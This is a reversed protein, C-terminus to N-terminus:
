LDCGQPGCAIEKQPSYINEEEVIDKVNILEAHKLKAEYEEKTVEEFPAQKYTGGDYPFCSLGNYSYRNEWMWGGVEGWENERIYITASVNHTNEGSRHGPKIWETHFKKVRNLLDIAGEHRYIAGEPAKVPVGFIAQIDPKEFDDELLEPFKDRLYGYIPENKGLRINRIYYPSHWGHIGSSCGLVISTTGSPKVTTIRAAFNIGIIKATEHNVVEAVMAARGLDYNLVSGSAIGTMGVGLLAEKETQIRWQPRIYHFDTFGAQLTGLFAAAWVREELDAQSEIFNVNVETLNCFQFPNLAIEVCPNCGWKKNNTFYIGPEGAMSEEAAKWIRDFDEKTATNRDLVASNNARGRQSNTEWWHGSKCKMMEEDDKSFLSIMAARRIGGSLVADAIFCCIDHAEIPKLRESPKKKMLLNKIKELCKKLPEPGPAKGGATVLREGKPRIDSFVFEPLYEGYFFAKMLKHLADAWGELTDSALFKYGRGNEDLKVKKIRPLKEIDQKQVSYGVGTGGLLLFLVERFARLDDIPLYACNYVRSENKGLARGAFQMGRMSPLVKKQRVLNMAKHINDEVQPYREMMMQEYRSCVEEFSERRKASEIHRSYKTHVVVDSLIDLTNIGM